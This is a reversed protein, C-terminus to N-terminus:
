EDPGDTSDLYRLVRRLAVPRGRYLAGFIRVMRDYDERTDVTLRLSPRSLVADPKGRTIRFGDPNRYLYQTIHEREYADRTLRGAEVLASGKIVEIGTGYPLDPFVTLDARRAKHLALARHLYEISVLPNDGTARVVDEIGYREVAMIYRSLVDEEPGVVLKAGYKKVTGDILPATSETTAVILGCAGAAAEFRRLIHEFVTTGCLPLLLKGSLRTSGIRVQLVIYDKKM